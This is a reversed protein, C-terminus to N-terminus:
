QPTPHMSNKGAWEWYYILAMLMPTSHLTSPAPSLSSVEEDGIFVLKGEGKISLTGVVLCSSVCSGGGGNPEGAAVAIAAFIALM